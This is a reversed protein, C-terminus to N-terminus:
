EADGVYSWRFDIQGIPSLCVDKLDDKQLFNLTTHYIPILPMQDMLLQEAEQLIGKREQPDQCVASANLREIYKPNEWGTNNTSGDKYKFVELFNIPDNFDAVWSCFALQYQKKGMREFYMKRELAETEIHIGLVSEIQSQVAQAVLRNREDSSFLLSIRPLEDITWGKKNLFNTLLSKAEEDNADTFYGNTTLGMAPPVLAQAPLQGGQLIHEAIKKRDIALALARRFTPDSLPSADLTNVRLFYTGSFPQAKLARSQKLQKFADVPLNSLPSGAWDISGESFMRLETEPQLMLLDIRKLRVDQADWYQPNRSVQIKDAHKWKLLSFPGNSVYTEQDEAWHPNQLATQQPIPFFASFSLLELFYPTSQNLEVVLTRPDPTQIGVQDIGLEGKKAEKAGKIVYLQYALDSPFAPDLIKRWSEAFDYSTVPEKNTWFAERLHFIYQLGDQSVEISEAMAPEITGDKGVRTLGEFLMHMMTVASLDRAKRPDLSQPESQINLRVQQKTKSSSGSQCSVALIVLLLFCFNSKMRFMRVQLFELLTLNVQLPGRYVVHSLFRSNPLFAGQIQALRLRRRLLDVQILQDIYAPEFATAASTAM